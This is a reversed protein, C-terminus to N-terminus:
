PQRLTDCSQQDFLVQSAALTQPRAERICGRRYFSPGRNREIVQRKPASASPSATITVAAGDREAPAAFSGYKMPAVTDSLPGPEDSPRGSASLMCIATSSILRAPPTLPWGSCIVIRSSSDFGVVATLLTRLSSSACGIASSPEDSVCVDRAIIGSAVWACIGIIENADLACTIWGTESRLHIKLIGIVSKWVACVICSNM